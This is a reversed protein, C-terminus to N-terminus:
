LDNKAEQRTQWEASKQAALRCFGMCEQANVWAEYIETNGCVDDLCNDNIQGIGAEQLADAMAEAVDALETLTFEALAAILMKHEAKM